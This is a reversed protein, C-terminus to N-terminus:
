RWGLLAGAGTGGRELCGTIGRPRPTIALTMLADEDRSGSLVSPLLSAKLGGHDRAQSHVRQVIEAVPLSQLVLAGTNNNHSNKFGRTLITPMPPWICLEPPPEAVDRSPCLQAYGSLSLFSLAPHELELIFGQMIKQLSQCGLGDPSIHKCLVLFM